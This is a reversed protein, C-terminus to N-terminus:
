KCTMRRGYLPLVREGPSLQLKTNQPSLAAAAAASVSPQSQFASAQLHMFRAAKSQKGEGGKNGAMGDSRQNCDEEVGESPTEAARWAPEADASVPRGETQRLSLKGNAALSGIHPPSPIAEGMSGHALMVVAEAELVDEPLAAQQSSSAYGVTVAADSSGMNVAGKNQVQPGLDRQASEFAPTSQSLQQLAEVSRALRVKEPTLQAVFAQALSDIKNKIGQQQRRGGGKEPEANRPVRDALLKPKEKSGRPRGRGRQQWKAGEAPPPEWGANVKHSKDPRPKKLDIRGSTEPNAAESPIAKVGGDFCQRSCDPQCTELGGRVPQKQTDRPAATSTDRSSSPGLRNQAEAASSIQSSAQDPLESVRARPRAQAVTKQGGSIVKGSCTSQKQRAAQKGAGATAEAQTSVASKQPMTSGSKKQLLTISNQVSPEASKNDAPRAKKATPPVRKLSAQVNSQQSTQQDSRPGSTCAKQQQPNLGLMSFLRAQRQILGAEGEPM